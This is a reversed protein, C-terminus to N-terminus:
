TKGVCYFNVGIETGYHTLRRNVEAVGTVETNKIATTQFLQITTTSVMPGCVRFWSNELDKCHLNWVGALLTRSPARLTGRQKQERAM